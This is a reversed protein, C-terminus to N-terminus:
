KKYTLEVKATTKKTQTTTTAASTRQGSASSKITKRETVTDKVTATIKATAKNAPMSKKISNTMSQVARSSNQSATPKRKSQGISWKQTQCFSTKPTKYCTKMVGNAKPPM